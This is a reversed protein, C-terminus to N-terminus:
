KLLISHRDHFQDVFGLPTATENRIRKLKPSLLGRHSFGYLEIVQNDAFNFAREMSRLCRELPYDGYSGCAKCGVFHTVFPWREDGFGPENKEIMEEYRDVLGVWYGHLYFSNEVFVKNMWEDKKSILLYILASQDDAEFEPRGKLNATLIKGAEDRIHGKPGMPAWADLLDLSWQCNWTKRANDWNTIKPGLTYTANPNITPEDPPDGDSRVEAVIRNAEEILRPNDDTGTTGSFLINIGITGRLVLVTVLGCFITIRLNNLGNSTRGRRRRATTNTPLTTAGAASLKKLATFNGMIEGESIALPHRFPELKIIPSLSTRSSTQAGSNLHMTCPIIAFVVKGLSFFLM